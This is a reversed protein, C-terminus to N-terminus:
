VDLDAMVYVGAASANRRQHTSVIERVTGPDGVEGERTPRPLSADAALYALQADIGGTLRFGRAVTRSAEARLHTMVQSLDLDLGEGVAAYLRQYGPSIALQLDTEHLKGIWEAQARHFYVHTDFEGRFRGNQPRALLFTLEDDSGY